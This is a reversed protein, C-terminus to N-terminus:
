VRFVGSHHVSTNQFCKVIFITVASVLSCGDCNTLTMRRSCTSDMLFILAAPSQKGDVILRKIRRIFLVNVNNNTVCLLRSSLWSNGILSQHHNNNVLKLTVIDRNEKEDKSKIKKQGETRMLLLESSDFRDIRRSVILLSKWYIYFFLHPFWRTVFPSFQIRVQIKLAVRLDIDFLLARWLLPIDQVDDDIVAMWNRSINWRCSRCHLANQRDASQGSRWWSRRRGCFKDIVVCGICRPLRDDRLKASTFEARRLRSIM